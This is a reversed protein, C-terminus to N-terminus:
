NNENKVRKNWAAVAEEETDGVIRGFCHTCMVLYYNDDKGGKHIGLKAIGGCFPCPKLENDPM